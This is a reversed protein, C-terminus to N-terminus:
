RVERRHGASTRTKAKRRVTLASWRTRDTTNDVCRFVKGLTVSSGQRALPLTENKRPPGKQRSNLLADM